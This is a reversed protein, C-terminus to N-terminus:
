SATKAGRSPCNTRKLEFPLSESLRKVLLCLWGSLWLCSCPEWSFGARRRAMILSVVASVTFFGLGTAIPGKIFLRLIASLAYGGAMVAMILLLQALEKRDIDSFIPM